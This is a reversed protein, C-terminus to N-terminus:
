NAADCERVTRKRWLLVTVSFAAVMLGESVAIALVFGDASLAPAAALAITILVVTGLAEIVTRARPLEFAVLFGGLGVRLTLLPAVFALLRLIDAIGSFESGVILFFVLPAVTYFLLGITLGYALSGALLIAVLSWIREPDHKSLSMIRPQAALLFAIVPLTAVALGRSALAYSGADSAGLLRPAIIKDAEGPGSSAMRMLAYPLGRRLSATDPLTLGTKRAALAGAVMSGIALALLATILHIAAFAPLGSDPFTAAMIALLALRAILPLALLIQGQAVRGQGQLRQAQVMVLPMVLLESAAIMLLVPVGASSRIVLAAILLYLPMLAGSSLLIVPLAKQYSERSKHDDKATDSLVLFGIGVSSLTGFLIALAAIAAYEGFEAPGLFSALLFLLAVQTVLRIGFVGMTKLSARALAGLRYHLIAKVWKM